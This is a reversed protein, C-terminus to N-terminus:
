SASPGDETAEYSAVVDGIVVTYTLTGRELDVNPLFDEDLSALLDPVQEESWGAERLLIVTGSVTGNDIYHLDVPRSRRATATPLSDNRREPGFQGSGPSCRHIESLKPPWSQRQSSSVPFSLFPCRASPGSKSIVAASFRSPPTAFPSHCLAAGPSLAPNRPLSSDKAPRAGGRSAPIAPHRM